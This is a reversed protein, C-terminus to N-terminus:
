APVVDSPHIGFVVRHFLEFMASGPPFDAQWVHCTLTVTGDDAEDFSHIQCGQGTSRLVYDHWPPLNVAIERVTPPRTDLWEGWIRLKEAQTM